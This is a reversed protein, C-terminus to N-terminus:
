AQGVPVEAFNQAAQLTLMDHQLDAYLDNALQELGQEL